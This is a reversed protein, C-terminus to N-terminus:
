MARSKTTLTNSMQAMAQLLTYSTPSQTGSHLDTITGKLMDLAYKTRQEETLDEGPFPSARLDTLSNHHTSHDEVNNLYVPSRAQYRESRGRSQMSNLSSRSPCSISAPRASDAIELIEQFDIPSPPISHDTSHCTAHGSSAASPNDILLSLRNDLESINLTGSGSTPSLLGSFNFPSVSHFQPTESQASPISSAQTQDSDQRISSLLDEFSFPSPVRSELFSTFAGKM